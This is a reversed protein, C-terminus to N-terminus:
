GVSCRWPNFGADVHISTLNNGSLWSPFELELKLFLTKVQSESWSLISNVQSESQSLISNM